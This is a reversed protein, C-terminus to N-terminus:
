NIPIHWLLTKFVSLCLFMCVGQMDCNKATNKQNLKDSLDYYFLWNGDCFAINPFSRHPEGWFTQDPDFSVTLFSECKYFINTAIVVAGSWVAVQSLPGKVCLLMRLPPRWQLGVCQVTLYQSTFFKKIGTFVKLCFGWVKFEPHQGPRLASHVKISRFMVKLQSSYVLHGRM